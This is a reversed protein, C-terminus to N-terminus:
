HLVETQLTNLKSYGVYGTERHIKETYTQIESETGNKREKPQVETGNFQMFAMSNKWVAVCLIEKVLSFQHM